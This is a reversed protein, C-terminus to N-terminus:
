PAPIHNTERYILFEYVM